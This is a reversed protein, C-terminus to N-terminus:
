QILGLERARVAAETRSKVQLKDFINRNHGKVTSLALFLHECIESNSLGRAVLNIVELERLSLPEILLNGSASRTQDPAEHLLLDRFRPGMIPRILERGEQFYKEAEGSSGSLRMGKSLVLMVVGAPPLREWGRESIFALMDECLEILINLRGTQLYVRSIELLSNAAGMLNESDKMLEIMELHLACAKDTEGLREYALALWYSASVYLIGQTIQLATTPILAIAKLAHKMMDELRNNEFSVVAEMTEALSPIVALKMASTDFGKQPADNLAKYVNELHLPIKDFKETFCCLWCQAMSLPASNKIDAPNLSNLMRILQRAQGRHIFVHWRGELIEVAKVLDGSEIIHRFAETFDGQALFWLGAKLHLAPIISPETYELRRKLLDSFLNHYRFWHRDNDLAVIFLNRHELVDLIAGGSSEGTLADCLSGTLSTLISTKLLFDLIEVSLGSLVEEGLYDVIYRNSGTFSEVFGDIDDIGGMSLAALQLGAVWGETRAELAEVQNESLKIDATRNLFECIEAQSFRLDVARIEVMQGRARLRSLNFSPNIRSSVILHINSPLYDLFFSLAHDLSPSEILHYDDLVLVIHIPLNIIENILITLLNEINIDDATELASSVGSGLSRDASQLAATFYTLFRRSDNDEKDLSLWASIYDPNGEPRESKRNLHIWDAILSSKGFGAPATVLTLRNQLGNDLMSFLQSRKVSSKSVPIFLKTKLLENQM